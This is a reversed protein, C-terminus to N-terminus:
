LWYLKKVAVNYQISTEQQKETLELIAYLQQTVQGVKAHVRVSFFHPDFTESLVSDINKPLSRLEKGYVPQLMTKWDKQWEVTKKFKKTWGDVLEKRKKSDQSENSQDFGFLVKLSHSFLWPEIKGSSSWVTFIDTLYISSQQKDKTNKQMIPPAFFLFDKFYGFEKKAILETADNFKSRRDKFVKEFASFLETTKTVKEIAKCLEQLISQWGKAKDGRFAQKKFNYIQNINIKGEESMLCISIAGDVGDIEETLSFEQWINLVPLVRKLLDKASSDSDKKETEQQPTNSPAPKDTQGPVSLQSQIIEIGSLALLKAKERDIAMRAFPAHVAGRHGVYTVIVMSAAIVLLTFIMIYGAHKNQNQRM